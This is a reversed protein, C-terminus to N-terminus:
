KHIFIKYNAEMWTDNPYLFKAVSDLLVNSNLIVPFVVNADPFEHLKMILEYPFVDHKHIIFKRPWKADQLNNVIEDENTMIKQLLSTDVGDEV